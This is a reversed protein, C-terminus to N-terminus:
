FLPLHSSLAPSHPFERRQRRLTMTAFFVLILLAGLAFAHDALPNTNLLPQLDRRTKWRQHLFFAALVVPSAVLMAVSWPPWGASRGEILPYMLMGLGAASLLVGPADLRRGTLTGTKPLVFPGVILRIVGIPVNVLFVPRWALGLRDAQLLVGGVIQGCVNALGLVVGMVAFAATREQGETFSLRVLSFV